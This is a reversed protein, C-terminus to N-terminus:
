VITDAEAIMLLATEKRFTNRSEIDAGQNIVFQFLIMTILTAATSDSDLIFYFSARVIDHFIDAAIAQGAASIRRSLQFIPDLGGSTWFPNRIRALPDAWVHGLLSVHLNGSNEVDWAGM